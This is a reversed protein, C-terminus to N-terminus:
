SFSNVVQLFYKADSVSPPTIPGCLDLHLSEGKSSAKPFHGPFPMNTMKCLNCTLCSIPPINLQSYMKSLYESSLHGSSQHLTMIQDPASLVSNKLHQLAQTVILTGSSYNGDLLVNKSKDVIQFKNNDLPQLIYHNKLLTGMSLLCNSLEPCYLTNQVELHSHPLEIKVTGIGKATIQSGNALVITRPSKILNVFYSLQNFMSDTAGSDLIIVSNRPISAQTNLAMTPKSNKPKLYSCDEEKHKTLPNHWGPACRPFTKPLNQRSSNSNTSNTTPNGQISVLASANNNTKHHQRQTYLCFEEWLHKLSPPNKDGNYNQLFIEGILKLHSTDPHS